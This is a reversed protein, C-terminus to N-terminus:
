VCTTLGGFGSPYLSQVMNRFCAYAAIMRRTPPLSRTRGWWNWSQDLDARCEWFLQPEFRGMNTSDFHTTELTDEVVRIVCTVPDFYAAGLRGSFYRLERTLESTSPTRVRSLQDCPLDILPPRSRSSKLAAHRQLFLRVKEIDPTTSGEEDAGEPNDSAMITGIEEDDSKSEWRVRKKSGGEEDSGRASASVSSLPRKSARNRMAHILILHSFLYFRSCDGLAPARSTVDRPPRDCLSSLPSLDTDEMLCQTHLSM